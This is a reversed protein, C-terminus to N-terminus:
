ISPSETWGGLPKGGLSTFLARWALALILVIATM